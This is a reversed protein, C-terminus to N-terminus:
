DEVDVDRGTSSKIAIGREGAKSVTTLLGLIRKTEGVLPVRVSLYNLFFVLSMVVLNSCLSLDM